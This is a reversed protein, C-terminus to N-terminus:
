RHGHTSMDPSNIIPQVLLSLLILLQSFSYGIPLLITVSLDILLLPVMKNSKLKHVQSMLTISPQVCFDCGVGGLLGDLQGAGLSSKRKNWIFSM